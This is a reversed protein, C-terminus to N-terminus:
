FKKIKLNLILDIIYDYVQKCQSTQTASTDDPISITLITMLDKKRKDEDKFKKNKSIQIIKYTQSILVDVFTWDTNYKMKESFKQKKLILRGNNM